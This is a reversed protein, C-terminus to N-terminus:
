EPGAGAYDENLAPLFAALPERDAPELRMAFFEPPANRLKGAHALASAREYFALVEELTNIHGTHLYPASQGLDRLSSTKFRAVASALVDDRSLEANLNLLREIAAQPAPLDPNGVVNWLGLDTHILSDSSVPSLFNAVAKPHAPTPQLWRDYAGARADLGPLALKAFEGAGHQADFEDQAVGTNHFAFDTFHPPVHCEACNGAGGTQQAGIAAKFFIRMGRLEMEGFRFAQDHLRLRRTPDDVFRPARLVAVAEGLRRAYEHPTQGPTPARPLRNAALFADYPSGNHLGDADRAYQLSRLFTVVLRACGDLIEDDSASAPDLRWREPLRWAPPISVDTGRLLVAYPAPAGDGGLAAGGDDERIVRAFHRRAEAQEGPLWGFNRGLFTGIVLDEPSGFEGDFHLLGAGNPAALADVLAPSNRPTTSRGDGREPVPSRAAFDGFARGGRAALEDGGRPEGSLHCALCSMTPGAGPRTAPKAGPASQALKALVPDGAALAANVNGGSHAFFFQAFRTEAFLRGGIRVEPSIATRNAAPAGGAPDAFIPPLIGVFGSVFVFRIKRLVIGRCLGSAQRGVLMREVCYGVTTTKGAFDTRKWLNGWVPLATQVIFGVIFWVIVSM